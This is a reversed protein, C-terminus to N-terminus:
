RAAAVQRYIEELKAAQAEWSYQEVVKRRANEGLSARRSPDKLLRIVSDAFKRPDDETVIDKGPAVDIGDCSMETAVVPKGMAWAELIKNKIGSGSRLPSVYVQAQSFYPRIDDVFGTIRVNPLHGCTETILPDPDRGVVWFEFDPIERIIHPMISKCFHLVATVNPEYDMVGTFIGVPKEEVSPDPKFFEADVGNPVVSVNDTGAVSKMVEADVPSVVVVQKFKPVYRKEFQRVAAWEYVFRVKEFVGPQRMITRRFYLSYDDISDCVAPLSELNPLYSLLNLSVVHIIDFDGNTMEVIRRRMDDSHCNVDRYDPPPYNLIRLKQLLNQRREKQHLPRIHFMEVSDFVNNLEDLSDTGIEENSQCILNMSHDAALAKLINFVRLEFGGKIPLPPKPSLVLVKM